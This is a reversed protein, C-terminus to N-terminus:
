VHRVWHAYREDVYPPYLYLLKPVCRYQQSSYPIVVAVVLPHCLM